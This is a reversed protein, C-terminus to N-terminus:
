LSLYPSSLPPPPLFLHDSTNSFVVMWPFRLNAAVLCPSALSCIYQCPSWAKRKSPLQGQPLSLASGCLGTCWRQLSLATCFARAHMLIHCELTKTNFFSHFLNFTHTRLYMCQVTLCKGNTQPSLGISFRAEGKITWQRPKGLRYPSQRSEKGYIIKDWKLM